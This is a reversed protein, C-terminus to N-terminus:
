KQTLTAWTGQIVLLVKREEFTFNQGCAAPGKKFLQHNNLENLFAM